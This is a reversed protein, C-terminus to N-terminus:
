GKSEELAKRRAKSCSLESLLRDAEEKNVIKLDGSCEINNGKRALAIYKGLGIRKGCKLCLLLEDEVQRSM